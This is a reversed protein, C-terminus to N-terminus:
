SCCDQVSCGPTLTLNPALMPNSITHFISLYSSIIPLASLLCSRGDMWISTRDLPFEGSMKASRVWFEAGRVAKRQLQGKSSISM